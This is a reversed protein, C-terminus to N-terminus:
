VTPLTIAKDVIVIQEVIQQVAILITDNSDCSILHHQKINQMVPLWPILNSSPFMSISCSVNLAKIYLLYQKKARLSQNTNNRVM